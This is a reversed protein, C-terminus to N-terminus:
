QPIELVVPRDMIIEGDDEGYSAHYSGLVLAVNGSYSGHRLPYRIAQAASVACVGDLPNDFMEGDIWVNSLHTLTDGVQVDYTHDQIRIGIYDYQDQYRPYVVQAIQKIRKADYM